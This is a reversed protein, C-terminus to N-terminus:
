VRSGLLVETGQRVDWSLTRGFFIYIFLIRGVSKCESQGYAWSRRKILQMQLTSNTHTGHWASLVASGASQGSSAATSGSAAASQSGAARSAPSTGTAASPGSSSGVATTVHTHVSHHSYIPQAPQSATIQSRGSHSPNAPQQLTPCHEDNSHSFSFFFSSQSAMIKKAKKKNQPHTLSLADWLSLM